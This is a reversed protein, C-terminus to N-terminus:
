NLAQFFERAASFDEPGLEHGMNHWRVEVAAGAEALKKALKQTGDKHIIPDHQGALLLVPVGDIPLLPDPELPLTPRMLVAGNLLKPYLLLLAAIMNAGNSYGLAAIKAPDFAYHAASERIFKDLAAAESRISEEDFVGEQLRRFFRAAGREDVRGRPSLLASGRAIGLGIPLLDNEDGGTGHLLVVTTASGKSPVYKHIFEAQM